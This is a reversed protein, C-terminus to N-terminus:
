GEDRNGKSLERMLWVKAMKWDRTVTDPSMKLVEATEEVSLGGFFRLEVVQSKRPDIAALSQLADDLAVLEEGREKSAVLAENLVVQRVEGGRKRNHRARAKDVLIRRMLQASIAFFHARNQWRVNRQEILRLYAEHVLATPQLTHGAPERGMYRKALGRLEQYVLPTLKELATRDGDMWAILLQTVEQASPAMSHEETIFSLQLPAHM